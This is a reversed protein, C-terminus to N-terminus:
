LQIQFDKSPIKAVPGHKSIYELYEVSPKYGPCVFKEKCFKLIDCNYLYPDKGTTTEIIFRPNQHRSKKEICHYEHPETQNFICLKMDSEVLNCRKTPCDGCLDYHIYYSPIFYFCSFCPIKILNFFNSEMYQEKKNCDECNYYRVNRKRTSAHTSETKCLPCIQRNMYYVQGTGDIIKRDPM